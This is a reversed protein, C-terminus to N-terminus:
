ILFQDQSENLIYINTGMHAFDDCAQLCLQAPIPGWVQITITKLVKRTDNFIPGWVLITLIYYRHPCQIQFVKITVFVVQTYSKSSAVMRTCSKCVFVTHMSVKFMFHMHTSIKSVLFCIRITLTYNFVYMYRLLFVKCLLFSCM